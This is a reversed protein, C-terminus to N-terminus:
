SITLCSIGKLFDYAVNEAFMCPGAFYVHICKKKFLLNRNMWKDDVCFPMDFAVFETAGFFDKKYLYM